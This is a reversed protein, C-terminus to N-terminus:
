PAREIKNRLNEATKRVNESKHFKLDKLQPIVEKALTQKAEPGCKLLTDGARDISAIAALIQYENPDNTHQAAEKLIAVVPPIIQKRFDPHSEALGGLIELGDDRFPTATVVFRRKMRIQVVNPLSLQTLEIITKLAQPDAAAIKPLTEMSDNTVQILVNLGWRARPDAFLAQCRQIEHLVVPTAPKGQEGLSALKTLAAEHKAAQEDVLLDFVPKYLEPNVKELAELAAHSVEKTTSLAAECLAGTAPRAKEGLNALDAAARVREETTGSQLRNM